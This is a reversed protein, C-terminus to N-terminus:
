MVQWCPVVFWFPMPQWLFVPNLPFPASGPLHVTQQAEAASRAAERRRRFETFDVVVAQAQTMVDM